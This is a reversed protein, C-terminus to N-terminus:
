QCQNCFSSCMEVTMDNSTTVAGVLARRNTAETRCGLAQFGATPQPGATTTTSATTAPCIGGTSAILSIDDVRLSSYPGTTFTCAIKYVGATQLTSQSTVEAWQNRSLGIDRAIEIVTNDPTVLECVLDTDSSRPLVHTMFTADAPTNLLVDQSLTCYGSSRSKPNFVFFANNPGTNVDGDDVIGCAMNDDSKTLTGAVSPTLPQWERITKPPM